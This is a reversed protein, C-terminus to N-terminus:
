HDSTRSQPTENVAQGGLHGCSGPGISDIPLGVSLTPSHM